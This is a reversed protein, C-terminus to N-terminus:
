VLIGDWKERKIQGTTLHGSHLQMGMGSSFCCYVSCFVGFHFLKNSNLSSIDISRSANSYTQYLSVNWGTPASSAKKFAIKDAKMQLKTERLEEKMKRLKVKLERKSLPKESDSSSDSESSSNTTAVSPKAKAEKRFMSLRLLNDQLQHQVAFNLEIDTFITILDGENDEYKLYMKQMNKLGYSQAIRERLASASTGQFDFRRM